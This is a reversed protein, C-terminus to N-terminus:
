VPKIKMWACIGSKLLLSLYTCACVKRGVNSADVTHGTTSDRWAQQGFQITRSEMQHNKSNSILGDAKSTSIQALISGFIWHRLIMLALCRMIDYVPRWTHVNCVVGGPLEYTIIIKKCYGVVLHHYSVIIEALTKKEDLRTSHHM